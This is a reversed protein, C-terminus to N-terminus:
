NNYHFNNNLRFNYIYLTITLNFIPGTHHRECIRSNGPTSIWIHRNITVKIYSSPWCNNTPRQPRQCQHLSRHSPYRSPWRILTICALQSNSLHCSTIRWLRRRSRRTLPRIQAWSSYQTKTISYYTSRSAMHTIRAEARCTKFTRRKTDMSYSSNSVTALSPSLPSHKTWRSNSSIATSFQSHITQQPPILARPSSSKAIRPEKNITQYCTKALM